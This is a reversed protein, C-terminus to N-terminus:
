DIYFNLLELDYSILYRCINSIQNIFICKVLTHMNMHFYDLQFYERRPSNQIVYVSCLNIRHINGSYPLSYEWFIATFIGLIHVQTEIIVHFNIFSKSLNDSKAWHKVNSMTCIHVSYYSMELCQSIQIVVFSELSIKRESKVKRKPKNAKIKCSLM